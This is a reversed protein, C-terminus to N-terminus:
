CLQFFHVQSPGSHAWWSTGRAGMHKLRAHAESLHTLYRFVSFLVTKMNELKMAEFEKLNSVVEGM